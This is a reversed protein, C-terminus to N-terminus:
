IVNEVRTKKSVDKGASKALQKEVEKKSRAIVSRMFSRVKPDAKNKRVFHVLVEPTFKSLSAPNIGAFISSLPDM